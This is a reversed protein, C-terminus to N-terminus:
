LLAVDFAIVSTTHFLDHYDAGTRDSAVEADLQGLRVGVHREEQPGLREGGDPLMSQGHPARAARDRHMRRCRGIRPVERPRIKNDQAHLGVVEILHHVLDLRDDVIPRHQERKLVPDVGFVTNTSAELPIAHDASHGEDIGFNRLRTNDVVVLLPRDGDALQHSVFAVPKQANAIKERRRAHRTLQGLINPPALPLLHTPIADEIRDGNQDVVLDRLRQIMRFHRADDALDDTLDRRDRRRQFHRQGRVHRIPDHLPRLLNTVDMGRHVVIPFGAPPCLDAIQVPIDDILAPFQADGRGHVFRQGGHDLGHSFLRFAARLDDTDVARDNLTHRQLSGGQALQRRLVLHLVDARDHGAHAAPRNSDVSQQFQRRQRQFGIVDRKMREVALIGRRERERLGPFM